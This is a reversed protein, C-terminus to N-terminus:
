QVISKEQFHTGSTATIYSISPLPQMYWSLLYPIGPSHTLASLHGCCSFWNECWYGAEDTPRVLPDYNCIDGSM